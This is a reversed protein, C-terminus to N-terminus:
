AARRKRALPLLGLALLSLTAPEPIPPTGDATLVINDFYNPGENPTRSTAFAYLAPSRFTDDNTEFTTPGATAGGMTLTVLHTNYDLDFRLHQWVAPTLALSPSGLLDDTPYIRGNLGYERADWGTPFEEANEGIYLEQAIPRRYQDFEITIKKHGQAVLDGLPLFAGSYDASNTGTPQVILVKGRDALAPDNTTAFDVIAPTPQNPSSFAQWAPPGTPGGDIGQGAVSGLTYGEFGGTTIVVARARPSLLAGTLLAAGLFLGATKFM